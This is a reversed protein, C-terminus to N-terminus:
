RIASPPPTRFARLMGVMWVVVATLYCGLLVWMMGSDLRHEPRLNAQFALQFVAVLLGMTAVGFWELRGALGAITRARREPALWYDRHPLNIWADPMWSLLAPLGLGLALIGALVVGYLGFFAARSQVADARGDARFHSAVPDPMLPYYWAAQAVALLTLLLLITRSRTM